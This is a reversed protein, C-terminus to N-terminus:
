QITTLKNGDFYLYNDDYVWQESNRGSSITRNIDNPEGWSLKCMEKTMGIKVKGQLIIEFNGAGFKVTLKDAEKATFAYNRDDFTTDYSVTTTEGASNEVVIALTYYKEEITLDKFKWKDGTKITIPEGTKIDLGSGSSVNLTNDKFVFEQGNLKEKQKEYFGVVLFPFSHKFESDYEYYLTDKSEKEVLELYYEKGYIYQSEEARPHKHIDIVKFYKAKLEEYKSNYSDCCKYVNANPKSAEYMEKRTMKSYDVRKYSTLFGRYGYKRLSESKEILYLDQNMYKYVDKGLFNQISDYPETIKSEEKKAIKTKTIQSTANNV